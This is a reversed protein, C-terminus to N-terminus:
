DWSVIKGLRMRKLERFINDYDAKHFNLRVTNNNLPLKPENNFTFDVDLPPHLEDIKSLVNLSQTVKCTTLNSLVLDLIRSSKNYVYNYQKLGNLHLLEILPM